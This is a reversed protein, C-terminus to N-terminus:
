KLALRMPEALESDFAVPPPHEGVGYRHRLIFVIFDGDRRALAFEGTEGFGEYHEHADVIQSLTAERPGGPTNQEYVSDHRAMAEMLRAQSQVTVQLRESHEEIDHRYLIVTMVVM